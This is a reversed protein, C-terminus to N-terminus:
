ICLCLTFLVFEEVMYYNTIDFNWLNENTKECAQPWYHYLTSILRFSEGKM